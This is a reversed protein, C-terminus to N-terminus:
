KLVYKSLKSNKKDFGSSMDRVYLVDNGSYYYLITRDKDEEPVKIKHIAHLNAGDLISILNGQDVFIHNDSSTQIHIMTKSKKNDPFAKKTLLGKSNYLMLSYDTSILVHSATPQIFATTDVSESWRVKGSRNLCLLKNNKNKQNTLLVFFNDNIAVISRVYHHPPVNYTFVLQLSADYAKIPFSLADNSTANVTFIYGEQVHDVYGSLQKKNIQKGNATYTYVMTKFNGLSGFPSALLITGDKQLFLRDNKQANKVWLQKGTSNYAYLYWVLKSKHQTPKLMYTNGNNGVIIHHGHGFVVMPTTNLTYKIKGTTDDIGYWFRKMEPTSSHLFLHDGTRYIDSDEINRSWKSPPLEEFSKAYLTTVPLFLSILLFLTPICVKKM